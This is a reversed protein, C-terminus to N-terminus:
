SPRAINTDPTIIAGFASKYVADVNKTPNLMPFMFKSKELTIETGKELAIPLWPMFGSSGDPKMTLFLPNQIKVSNDDETLVEAVIEEGNLLKIVRVEM